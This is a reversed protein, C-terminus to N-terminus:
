ESIKNDNSNGDNSNNDSEEKSQKKQFNRLSFIRKKALALYKRGAILIGLITGAVAQLLLFGTGPDIYAHANKAILM